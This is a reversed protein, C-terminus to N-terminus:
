ILYLILVFGTLKTYDIFIQGACCIAGGVFFSILCNKLIEM